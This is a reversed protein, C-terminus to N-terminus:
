SALIVFISTTTAPIVGGNVNRIEFVANTSSNGAGNAYYVVVYQSDLAGAIGIVPPASFGRNSINVNFQESAAGGTLTVSITDMYCVSLTRPSSAGSPAVILAATRHSSVQSTGGTIAVASADQLAMTKAGYLATGNANGIRLWGSRVGSSNVARVRIYGPTPVNSYLDFGPTATSFLAPSGAATFWSYDIAPDSDTFTAKIEYGMLDAETNAAWAAHTGFLWQSSGAYMVAPATTSLTGSTPTAPAGAKQASTFSGGSTPGGANQVGDTNSASLAFDYLTNPSLDSITWTGSSVIENSSGMWNSTGHVRYLLSMWAAGTPLSPITFDQLAYVSGDGATYTSGSGSTAPASPNSPATTNALSAQTATAGNSVSSQASEVNSTSVTTAKYFYQQGLTVTTDKYSTSQADGVFSFTGGSTTSRYIKYYKLTSDTIRTLEVDIIQGQGATAVPAAPTGATASSSLVTTNDVEIFPGPAAPDILSQIRVDYATGSLLMGILISVLSANMLPLNKWAGSGHVAYQVQILGGNLMYSATPATWSVSLGPVVTGDPQVFNTSAVTLGSPNPNSLQLSIGGAPNAVGTKTASLPQVKFFKTATTGNYAGGSFVNSFEANIWAVILSRQVIWVDAGNAIGAAVSGQRGRLVAFTYTGASPMTIAGISLVEGTSPIIAVLTDNGQGIADQSQQSAMDVGATTVTISAAGSGVAGSQVAHVAFYNQTGIESFPGGTVPALYVNVGVYNLNPRQVLLAVSPAVAFGSPLQFPCVDATIIQAPVVDQPLVRVDVPALYTTPFAGRERMWEIEVFENQAEDTLQKIRVIRNIGFPAYNLVFLDGAALPAGSIWMAARRFVRSTGTTEPTGADQALRSAVILPVNVSTGDAPGKLFPMDFKRTSQTAAAVVNRPVQATVGRTAYDDKEIYSVCIVSPMMDRGPVEIEPPEVHHSEDIVTLGIASPVAGPMWSVGLNAGSVPFFGDWYSALESLVQQVDKIATYLPHFYVQEGTRGGVGTSEIAQAQAGWVVPDINAALGAGGRPHMLIGATASIPNVGFLNDDASTWGNLAPPVCIAEIEVNGISSASQGWNANFLIAYGIGKYSPHLQGSASVLTADAVQTEIGQYVRIFSNFGPGNAGWSPIVTDAYGSGNWSDNLACIKVGDIWLYGLRHLPGLGICGVISSVSYNAYQSAKPTQKNFQDTMWKLGRKMCGYGFQVPEAEKYSSLFAQDSQNNPISIKKSFSM